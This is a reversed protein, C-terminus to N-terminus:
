IVLLFKMERPIRSLFQNSIFWKDVSTTDFYVKAGMFNSSIQM